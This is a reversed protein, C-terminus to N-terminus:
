HQEEKPLKFQLRVKDTYSGIWLPEGSVSLIPITALQFHLQYSSITLQHATMRSKPLKQKMHKM